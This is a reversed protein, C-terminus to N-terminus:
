RGGRRLLDLRETARQLLDKRGAEAAYSQLIQLAEVDNPHRRTTADLLALARDPQGLDHLGVAYVYAFRASTSDFQVAQALEGLSEAHRGQRILSLGLAHHLDGSTPNAELGARLVSDAAPEARLHRAAEALDVWAPPFRPWRRTAVRFEREATAWDGQEGAFQGLNVHAEARDDNVLQAERYEAAGREFAKRDEPAWDAVPVGALSGTAALRVSRISDTLLPSGMRLRLMPEVAQIAEVASRRVRPDRDGLAIQIAGLTQPGANGTMLAVATARAIAPYTTDQALAILASPAGPAQMRGAEIAEGYHVRTTDRAPYWRRVAAAAWSPSQNPHCGTCPNPTGLRDSLDPRPLRFSHDRRAHVVMYNRTMMHCSVCRAEVTGAKHFHHAPTDYHAAFHCNACLANGEARTKGSHSDHCDSCTVGARAMKSQLFSGYEYVEERQQGDPFYLEGDLLAVRLSQELNEGPRREKWITGRRAHCQGCTEVEANSELPKARVAIPKGGQFTWTGGAHRPLRVILGATSDSRYRTAPDKRAWQLHASAPGHCAECSVDIESWTTAFSDTASQYGRRLDTSHCDACMFNWNQLPGTWHLIDRADVREGPYLHFWRQGGDARSRTDWAIGLAQLRGRPFEILYQQLPYVGFTYAIRYDHLAGDPGDTRVWYGGDRRTFTSTIGAYSFTRGGFDGVVTTSDAPQM